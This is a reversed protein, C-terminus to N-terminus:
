IVHASRGRVQVSGGRTVTAVTIVGSRASPDGGFTPTIEFVGRPGGYDVLGSIDTGGSWTDSTTRFCLGTACEFRVWQGAAADPMRVWAGSSDTVQSGTAPGAIRVVADQVPASLGSWCSLQVSAADLARSFTADSAARWFAGPVAVDFAVETRPAATDLDRPTVGSVEYAAVRGNDHTIVGRDGFLTVLTERTSPPAEVVLRLVTERTTGPIGPVVGDRGALRLGQRDKTLAPVVVSARMFTWGFTSNDLAVGNVLM